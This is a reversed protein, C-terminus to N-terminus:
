RARRQARASGRQEDPETETVWGARIWKHAVPGPVELTVGGPYRQGEHVVQIGQAVTVNVTEAQHIRNLNEVERALAEHVDTM